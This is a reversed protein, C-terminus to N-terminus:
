VGVALIDFIMRCLSCIVSKSSGSSLRFFYVEVSLKTKWMRKITKVKIEELTVPEASTANTRMIKTKDRYINLGVQSSNDALVTTQYQMELIATPLKSSMWWLLSLLAPSSSPKVGSGSQQLKLTGGSNELTRNVCRSGSGFEGSGRKPSSRSYAQRYFNAFLAILSLAYIAVAWNFGKPFACDVVINTVTHIMVIVFQLLQLKTLYRKWWLYPQWQPGLAALGYYTYMVVHVGTNLLPHFFAQGGAVYAVGLWWNLIMTAHHYVHLFTIQRTKKRLIFFVTDALEVYKSIYYLWCVRAMRLANPHNSYDVPQCVLSYKGIIASAAFEYCMYASLLVLALNYIVIVKGLSLPPLPKMLRPGVVVVVLYVGVVGMPIAPSSMLPWGSVRSDMNDLLFQHWGGAYSTTDSGGM